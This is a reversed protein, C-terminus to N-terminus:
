LAEIFKVLLSFYNDFKTLPLTEPKDYVDHYAPIGGMTYIFFSPVGKNYFPCHDSNCAAGRTRVRPLLQYQRNISDIMGFQNKYISGNVVTIGEAGTGALDINLLFRIRDLSVPTNDAAYMSGLLGAEEAGTAIFLLSHDPQNAERAFYRSLCLMMAVGSANDNAGPFMTRKGMMGLHDYHATIVLFSDPCHKGPIFGIVNRSRYVPYFKNEVCIKVSRITDPELLTHIIFGTNTGKSTSEYWTLKRSSIQITAPLKDRRVYRLSHLIEDKNKRESPTLLSDATDDIILVKGLSSNLLGELNKKDLLDYSQILICSFDGTLGISEPDILYDTGPRMESGNLCLKMKSPFSNIPIEFPQFYTGSHPRVQQKRFERAIYRAAKKEGHKVYGRGHMKPNCLRNITYRAYDTEQAALGQLMFLLLYVAIVSRM